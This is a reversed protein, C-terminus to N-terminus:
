VKLSTDFGVLLGHPLGGFSGEKDRTGKRHSVLEGQFVRDMTMVFGEVGKKVPTQRRCVTGKLVLTGSAM